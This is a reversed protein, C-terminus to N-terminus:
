AAKKYISKRREAVYRPDGEYRERGGDLTHIDGIMTLISERSFPDVFASKIDPIFVMDSKEVTLFGYSSGDFGVGDTLVEETFSRIPMTLHHWRGKLDVVKFDVFKIGREDCFDKLENFSNFM